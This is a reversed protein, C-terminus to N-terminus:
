AIELGLETLLAAAARMQDPSPAPVDPLTDPRGVAEYKSRALSHYPLLRVASVNALRGLWTGIAVLSEADANFGPIVPVRIEIPVGRQALRELNGLIQRNSSGTWEEHRQEDTHKVDYLFLDTHPLVAEFAQWAAAGCTDIACHVGQERLRELLAACFGAQGLPEGGSLTCGGGSHVYFNRDELVAEVAADVTVERGYYELAGPLCAEVCAGCATCRARDLAHLGDRVSHVGAPCAEVCARCGICKRALFGIEPKPSISEPNHCWACRLPCGKLFLTTRIGPGDHVALRKIDVVRGTM